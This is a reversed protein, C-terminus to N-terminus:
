EEKMSISIIHEHEVECYPCKGDVWAERYTGGCNDCEVADGEQFAMAELLLKYFRADQARAKLEKVCPSHCIVGHSAPEGCIGCNKM